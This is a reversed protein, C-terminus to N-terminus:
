VQAPAKKSIVDLTIELPDVDSLHEKMRSILSHFEIKEDGFVDM